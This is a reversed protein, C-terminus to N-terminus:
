LKGFRHRDSAVTEAPSGARRSRTAGELSLMTRAAESAIM